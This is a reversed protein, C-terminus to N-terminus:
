KRGWKEAYWDAHQQAAERMHYKMATSSAWIVMRGRPTNTTMPHNSGITMQRAQPQFFTESTKRTLSGKLDTTNGGLVMLSGGGHSAKWKAYRQKLPRWTGSQRTAFTQEMAENFGPRYFQEWAPRLDKTNDLIREIAAQLEPVGELAVSLTQAKAQRAM